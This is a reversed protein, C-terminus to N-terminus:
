KSESTATSEKAKDTSTPTSKEASANESPTDTTKTESTKATGNKSGNSSRADNIYFGSGKFVVGVSNVVRRIRGNCVPCVTLPEDSMRQRKEFEHECENCRYQYYPM